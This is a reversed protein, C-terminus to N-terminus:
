EFHQVAFLSPINGVYYGFGFTTYNPNLINALAEESNRWYDFLSKLTIQNAINETSINSDFSSAIDQARAKASNNLSDSLTLAALGHQARLDNVMQLMLSAAESQSITFKVDYIKDCITCKSCSYGDATYDDCPVITDQACAVIPIVCTGLETSCVDCVKHGTGALSCTAPTDIVVNETHGTAPLETTKADECRACTETTSGSETCTPNVRETEKYDHGLVPTTTRDTTGECVSCVNLVIGTETCTSAKEVTEVYKHGTAPITTRTKVNSCVSCVEEKKGAKECTPATEVMEYNHEAKEIKEVTEKNCRKCKREMSGEEKCTAEKIIKDDWNHGLAPVNKTQGVAGCTSCKSVEKGEVTCTAATKTTKYTHNLKPLTTTQKDNCNSCTKVESGSTSCTPKTNSTVKYNHGRAPITETKKDKCRSCVKVSSGASTCTEQTSTTEKYDHGLASVTETKSSGCVCQKTVTGAKECTADSTSAVTYNHVHNPDNKDVVTTDDTGLVDDKSTTETTEPSDEVPTTAVSDDILHPGSPITDVPGDDKKCGAFVCITCLALSLVALKKINKSM